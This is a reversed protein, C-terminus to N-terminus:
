RVPQSESKQAEVFSLTLDRARHYAAFSSTTRRLYGLALQRIGHNFRARLVSNLLHNALWRPAQTFDGRLDPIDVSSLKTFGPAVFNNLVFSSWKM